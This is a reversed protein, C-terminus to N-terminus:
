PFSGGVASLMIFKITPPKTLTPSVLSLRILYRQAVLDTFEMVKATSSSGEIVNM